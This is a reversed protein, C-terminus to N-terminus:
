LSFMSLAHLSEEDPQVTRTATARRYFLRLAREWRRGNGTDHDEGFVILWLRFFFFTFTTVLDTYGRGMYRSFPLKLIFPWLLQATVMTTGTGHAGVLLNLKALAVMHM